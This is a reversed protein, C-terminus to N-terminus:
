KTFDIIKRSNILYVIGSIVTFIATIWLLTNSIFALDPLEVFLDAFSKEAVYYTEGLIMILITFVMQSVTKIKGWINAPIVVGNSAAIMRVSAITFERFLIIMVIWINCLGMSMFALLAATTLVKDAIPDLFKGFNTVQNNKRALHGDFADTISAISFIVCAVLYRHPLEEALIIALFIPTIVIRSITLLNPLNFIM